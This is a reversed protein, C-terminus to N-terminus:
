QRVPSPRPFTTPSVSAHVVARCSPTSSLTPHCTSRPCRRSPSSRRRAVPIPSLTLATLPALYSPHPAVCEDVRHHLRRRRRSPHSPTPKPGPSRTTDSLPPRSAARDPRHDPRSALPSAIEPLPATPLEVHTRVAATWVASDSRSKLRGARESVAAWLLWDPSPAARCQRQCAPGV